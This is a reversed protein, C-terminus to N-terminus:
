SQPQAKPQRMLALMWVFFGVYGIVALLSPDADYGFIAKLIAGIGENESLIPSLDFLPRVFTPLVGAGQLEVIGHALLGAAILILLYTAVTFFRRTSLKRSGMFILMALTIAGIVGAAAAMLSLTNGSQASIAELFIVTEIGERVVAVFALVGIMWLEKREMMLTVKQELSSKITMANRKIWLVMHTIVAAATLMLIGEYLKEATGEFGGLLANFVSAFVISMVVGLAAGVWVYISEKNAGLARLTSLLIGIVVAAELGERFTILFTAGMSMFVHLVPM